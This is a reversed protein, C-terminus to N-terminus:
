YTNPFKSPLKFGAGYDEKKLYKILQPYDLKYARAYYYVLKDLRETEDEKLGLRELVYDNDYAHHIECVNVQKIAESENGSIVEGYINRKEKEYIRISKIIRHKYYKEYITKIANENVNYGGINHVNSFAEKPIADVIGKLLYDGSDVVGAKSQNAAVGYEAVLDKITQDIFEIIAKTKNDYGCKTYAIYDTYAELTDKYWNMKRNSGLHTKCFRMFDDYPLFRNALIGPRLGDPIANIFDNVKKYSKDITGYHEGGALIKYYIDRTIINEINALYNKKIIGQEEKIKKDVEERCIVDSGLINVNNYVTTIDLGIM